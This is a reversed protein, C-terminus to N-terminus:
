TLGIVATVDGPAKQDEKLFPKGPNAKTSSITELFHLTADVFPNVLKVDM